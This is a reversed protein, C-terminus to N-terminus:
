FAANWADGKCDQMFAQLRGPEAFFMVMLHPVNAAYGWEWQSPDNSEVDGLRRARNEETMGALFEASFGAVVSSPIGLAELGPATFAIQMAASPPPTITVASTVPANRLWARAATVDKVRLHAYSAEKMKGYGFRILGQVDSYDVESQTMPPRDM